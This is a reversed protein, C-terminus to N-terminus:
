RRRRYAAPRACSGNALARVDHEGVRVHQVAADQRVVRVPRLRELVEAVEDDVLQVVVAADVAAVEGVHEAAQAADAFEVARIRLEDAAGGGDRVRPFEGFREGLLREFEDISM